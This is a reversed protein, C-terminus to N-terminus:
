KRFSAKRGATNRSPGSPTPKRPGQRNKAALAPDPALLVGDQLFNHKRIIELENGYKKILEKEVDADDYGRFSVSVGERGARGTRGIRHVYTEGDAPMDFNIVLDLEKVDIGRSALDTAVLIKLSHAKFSQM